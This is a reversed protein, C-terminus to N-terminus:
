NLVRNNLTRELRVTKLTMPPPELTKPSDKLQEQALQSSYKRRGSGVIM